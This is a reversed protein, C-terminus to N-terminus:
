KQILIKRPYINKKKGKVVVNMLILKMIEEKEINKYCYFKYYNNGAKLSIIFYIM